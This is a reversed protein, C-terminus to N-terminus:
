SVQVESTYALHDPLVYGFGVDPLLSDSSYTYDLAVQVCMANATGSTCTKRDSIVCSGADNGNRVLREASTCAVDYSGLADNVADRARTKLEASTLGVPAIAAARAGEAAGQSIAQRFSLMYGYSIVGFVLYLLPIVVIAFEVASAGRADRRRVPGRDPSREDRQKGRMM